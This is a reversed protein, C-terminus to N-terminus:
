GFSLRLVENDDLVSVVAVEPERWDPAQRAQALVDDFAKRLSSAVPSRQVGQASMREDMWAQLRLAAPWDGRQAPLLMLADGMWWLMGEARTVDAAERLAAESSGQGGLALGMAASLAATTAYERLLGCARLDQVAAALTDHAREREGLLWLAQGLGFAAVWAEARDDSARARQLDDVCFDCFTQLDGRGHANVAETWAAFNRERASWDPQELARMRALLASRDDSPAVRQLLAAHLYLALMASRADGTGTFGREAEELWAFAEAPALAQGYAALAGIALGYAARLMPEQLGAQHPLLAQHWALAERKRGSRLWFLMADSFLQVVLRRADTADDASGAAGLRRTAHTMALRLNDAEPRLPALWHLLPTRTYSAQAKRFHACMAQTLRIRVADGEGASQLYEDALARVSELQRLRPEGSATETAADLHLLSHEQLTQLADLVAWRAEDDADADAVVQMAMAPTFSGAFVSLRRLVQLELPELLGFSWELALRLTRHRQPADRAGRSLLAFRDGMRQSMRELVGAVGLLPVRAAALEIALPLGDLLRCLAALDALTRPDPAFGPQQARVREVFLAVSSYTLLSTSTGEPTAAPPIDLPPLPLLVEDAVRLPIQSTVLVQLGPAAALCSAVVPTLADILHEANDLVLRVRLPALAQALAQVSRGANAGLSLARAVTDLLPTADALAELRVLWVGDEPAAAHAAQLALATKGVGGPGLVTVLRHAGMLAQLQSLAQQRGVLVRGAAPLNGASSPRDAAAPPAGALGAPPPAADPASRAGQVAPVLEAVFRYGRRPVTKIYRPEAPDDGIRSRLNNLTVKLVSESVHRHGWIADLLEDKSVLHGAREALHVLVAYPRPALDVAEGNRLLQGAARDLVFPGFTLCCPPEADAHMAPHIRVGARQGGHMFGARGLPTRVRHVDLCLV